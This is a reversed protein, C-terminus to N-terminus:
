DEGDIEGCVTSFRSSDKVSATKQDTLWAWYEPTRQFYKALEDTLQLRVEPDDV